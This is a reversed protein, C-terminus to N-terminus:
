VWRGNESDGLWLEANMISTRRESGNGRDGGAHRLKVEIRTM